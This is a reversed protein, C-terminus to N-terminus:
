KLSTDHALSSEESIPIKDPPFQKSSKLRACSARRNFIKQSSHVRNNVIKEVKSKMGSKLKFNYVLSTFDLNNTLYIVIWDILISKERIEYKNFNSRYSSGKRTNETREPTTWFSPWAKKFVKKIVGRRRWLDDWM